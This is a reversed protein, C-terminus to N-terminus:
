GFLKLFRILIGENINNDLYKLKKENFWDEKMENFILLVKRWWDLYNQIFHHIGINIILKVSSWIIVLILSFIIFMIMILFFQLWFSILKQNLRGYDFFSCGRPIKQTIISSQFNNVLDSTIDITKINKIIGFCIAMTVAKGVLFDSHTNFNNNNDNNLRKEKKKMIKKKKYIINKYHKKERKRSSNNNIQQPTSCYNDERDEEVSWNDVTKYPKYKFRYDV